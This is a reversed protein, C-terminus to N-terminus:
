DWRDHHHHGDWGGLDAAGATAAATLMIVLLLAVLVGTILVARRRGRDADAWTGAGLLSTRGQLVATSAIARWGPAVPAPDPLDATLAPLEDVYRAAFAATTRQHGEDITLMGQAVADHIRHVVAERQVDSARFRTGTGATAGTGTTADTGDDNPATM